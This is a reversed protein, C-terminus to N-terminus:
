DTYIRVVNGTLSKGTVENYLNLYGKGFLVSQSEVKEISSKGDVFSQEVYSKDQLMKVAEEKSTFIIIDRKELHGEGVYIRGKVIEANFVVDGVRIEMKPTSSSLPSNHLNYAKITYLLFYVFGEDFQSISEETSLGSTPNVLEGSNTKEKYYSDFRPSYLVFYFFIGIVLLVILVVSVWAIWTGKKNRM